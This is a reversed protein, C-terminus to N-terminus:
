RVDSATKPTFDEKITTPKKKKKKKREKKELRAHKSYRDELFRFYDIIKRNRFCSAELLWSWM